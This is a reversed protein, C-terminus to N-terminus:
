NNGKTEECTACDDCCGVCEEATEETGEEPDEDLVYVDPPWIGDVIGYELAEYTDMYWDQKRMHCEELKEEPIESNFLVYDSIRQQLRELYEGYERVETSKGSTGSSLEHYMLTAYRQAYRTHGALLILFGGSMAEGVAVTTIPTKSAEIASVAAFACGVGGGPSHIFITIPERKFGSIELREYEKEGVDDAGNFMHIQMVLKEVISEDIVGNIIIERNQQHGWWVKDRLPAACMDEEEDGSEENSRKKKVTM